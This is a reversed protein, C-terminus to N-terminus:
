EMRKYLSHFLPMNGLMAFIFICIITIEFLSTATQIFYMFEILLIIGIFITIRKALSWADHKNYKLDHHTETKIFKTVAM